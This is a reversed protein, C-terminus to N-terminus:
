FRVNFLKNLFYNKTNFNFICMNQVYKIIIKLIVDLVVFQLDSLLSRYKLADNMKREIHMKVPKQFSIM